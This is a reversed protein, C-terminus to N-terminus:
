LPRPRRCGRQWGGFRGQDALAVALARLLQVPSARNGGAVYVCGALSGVGPALLVGKLGPTASWGGKEFM